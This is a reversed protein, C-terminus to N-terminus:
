NVQSAEWELDLLTEDALKLKAQKWYARVRGWAALKEPSPAPMKSAPMTRLAQVQSM